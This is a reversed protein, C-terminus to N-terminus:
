KLSSDALPIEVFFKTGHGRGRSEAWIKGGHGEVIKKVIFLGYGTSNVNVKLSEEGRGGEKFLKAKDGDSLGVGSDEVSFLATKIVRRGESVNKVKLNVHVFGTLTYKVSNDILNKIVQTMQLRDIKSLAKEAPLNVEYALGKGVATEKFTEAIGAVFEKLDTEEFNYTMTGSRLSSAKLVEQVMEVAKNDSELGEKLVPTVAEPIQGFDGELLSAFVMKSKTFFGKVQHTIFRILLQQNENAVALEERQAVEKKVSRIIMLGVIASIVLTIATLVRNVNNQIFFFQSGILIILAWVLAQAGILKIDFAKFRVILYALFVIFLLMGVPGLLNVEYLLTVDGFISTASLILMCLAAGVTLLLIEKRMIVNNSRRVEILSLFLIFFLSLAEFSYLYAMMIGTNAECNVVDFSKMNLHSYLTILIPAALILTVINLYRSNKKGRVFNNVFYVIQLFILFYLLSSIKWEFMNLSSDVTIWQLVENVLLLSYTFTLLLLLKGSTNNSKKYVFYGLLLSVAIVPFYSYFILRPAYTLDFLGFLDPSGTCQLYFSTINSM